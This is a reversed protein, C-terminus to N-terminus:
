CDASAKLYKYIKGRCSQKCVRFDEQCSCTVKRCQLPDKFSQLEENVIIGQIVQRKQYEKFRLAAQMNALANCEQINNRCQKKCKNIKANCQLSCDKLQREKNVYQNYYGCSSVLIFLFILILRLYIRM